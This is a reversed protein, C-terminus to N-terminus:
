EDYTYTPRYSIIPLTPRPISKSPGLFPVKGLCYVGGVWGKSKHSEPFDVM